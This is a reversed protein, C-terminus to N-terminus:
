RRAVVSPVGPLSVEATLTTTVGTPTLQRTRGRADTISSVGDNAARIVPLGTERARTAVMSAHWRPFVSRGWWADNTLVVLGNAGADRYRRALADYMGEFCIMVGLRADGVEFLTPEPGPTFAGVLTLGGSRTGGAPARAGLGLARAFPMGEVFPLLHQKGYWAGPRGDPYAIAAGNYLATLRGGDKRAIECGYLVPVGVRAAIVEMEPDRFPGAGNWIVPSPRATEPWVVLDAGVAAEATLAELRRWTSPWRDKRMKEAQEVAPQVIGVRLTSAPTESAESAADFALPALWIAGAAAACAFAVRRRERAEMALDLVVAVAVVWVEIGFAGVWPAPALWAPNTGFAHEIRDAPFSLDGLTRLWDGIVYLAGFGISRPLRLRRELALAGWAELVGFPLIFLIAMLYIGIALPSHALLALLFHAAVAYRAAGFVLGFRVAEGPTRVRRLGRMALVFALPFLPALGFPLWCLAAAAGAAGATVLIRGRESM